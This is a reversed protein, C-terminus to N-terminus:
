ASPVQSFFSHSVVGFTIRLLKWSWFICKFSLLSGHSLWRPLENLFKQVVPFLHVRGEWWFCLQQCCHSQGLGITTRSHPKNEPKYFAVNSLGLGPTETPGPYPLSDANRDLEWIISISSTQSGSICSQAKFFIPLMSLFPSEIRTSLVSSSVYCLELYSLDGCCVGSLLLLLLHYPCVDVWASNMRGSYLRRGKIVSSNRLRSAQQGRFVLWCAERVYRIWLWPEWDPLVTDIFQLLLGVWSSVLLCFTCLHSSVFLCRLFVLQM